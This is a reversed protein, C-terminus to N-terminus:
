NIILLFFLLIALMGAVGALVGWLFAERLELVVSRAVQAREQQTLCPALDMIRTAAHGLPGRLRRRREVTVFWDIVDYPFLM